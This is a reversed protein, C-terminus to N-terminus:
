TTSSSWAKPTGRSPSSRLLSLGVIDLLTQHPDGSKGIWAANQSITAGTQTSRACCTICRLASVVQALETRGSSRTLWRIRSFATVPLIGYPQGAIRIAPVPGRGSVYRTFFSRTSEIVADPFISTTGPNPTLMKDMWYGLTAPWLASQMARAQM